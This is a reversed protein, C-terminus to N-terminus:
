ASFEDFKIVQRANIELADCYFSETVSQHHHPPTAVGSSDVPWLHDPYLLDLNATGLNSFPVPLGLLLALTPVM